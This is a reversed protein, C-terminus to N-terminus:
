LSTEFLTNQLVFLCRMTYFITTDEFVMANGLFELFVENGFLGQFKIKGDSVPRILNDVRYLGV